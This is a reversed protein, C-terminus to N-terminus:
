QGAGELTTQEPDGNAELIESPAYFAASGMINTLFTRRHEHVTALDPNRKLIPKDQRIRGLIAYWDRAATYAIKRHEFWHDADDFVPSGEHADNDVFKEFPKVLQQSGQEIALCPICRTVTGRGSELEYALDTTGCYDCEPDYDSM